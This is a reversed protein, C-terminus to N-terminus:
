SLGKTVAIIMWDEKTSYGVVVGAHLGDVNKYVARRGKCKEYLEKGNM